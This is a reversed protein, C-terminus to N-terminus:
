VIKVKKVPKTYKAIMIEYNIIITPISKNENNQTKWKCKKCEVFDYKQIMSLFTKRDMKSSIHSGNDSFWNCFTKYLMAPTTILIHEDSKYTCKYQTGFDNNMTGNSILFEGDVLSRFFTSTIPESKEKLEERFATGPILRPDWSSIDRSVLMDFIVKGAEDCYLTEHLRKFYEKDGIRKSSCEVACYRRDGEEIKVPWEHNTLMVHRAYNKQEEADVGKKEINQTTQTILTKLYDNNKIAGGFNQIEDLLHFVSNSCLANFNGTIQEIRQFYRSHKTGIVYKAFFEWLINKGAGQEGKFLLLVGVESKAITKQILHAMWNLIYKYVELDSNSMVQYMHEQFVLEIETRREKTITLNYDQAHFGCFLNFIKSNVSGRDITPIYGLSEFYLHHGNLLVFKHLPMYDDQQTKPNVYKILTEGGAKKWATWSGIDYDMCGESNNYKTIVKKNCGNGVIALTKKLYRIIDNEHCINQTWHLFYASSEPADMDYIPILNRKDEREQKVFDYATCKHQLFQTLQEFTYTVDDKRQMTIFTKYNENKAMQILENKTYVNRENFLYHYYPAEFLAPCRTDDQAYKVLTKITLKNENLSYKFSEWIKEAEEHYDATMYLKFLDLGGNDTGIENYIAQGIKIYHSRDNKHQILDALVTIQIKKDDVNEYIPTEHQQSENKQVRTQKKISFKEVLSSPFDLFIGDNEHEKYKFTQKSYKDFYETPYSFVIAKDNRIDVGCVELYNFVGTGTGITDNYKFYYHYGRPTKCFMTQTLQPEWTLLIENSKESDVDLVTIGSPKGTKIYFVKHHDVIKSENLDKWPSWDKIEKKIEGNRVKTTMEPASFGIFNKDHCLNRFIESVDNQSTVNELTKVPSLNGSEM